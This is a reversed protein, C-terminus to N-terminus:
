YNTLSCGAFTVDTSFIRALKIMTLLSPNKLGRELQSIYARDCELEGALDDQTWANEERLQRLIGGFKKVPDSHKVPGNLVGFAILELLSLKRFTPM